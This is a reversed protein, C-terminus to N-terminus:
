TQIELSMQELVLRANVNHAIHQEAAIVQELAGIRAEDMTQERLSETLRRLFIEVLDASHVEQAVLFRESIGGSLFKEVLGDAQVYHKKLEPSMALEAQLRPAEEGKQTSAFRIHQMRSRITALVANSRSTVLIFVVGPHPEELSKLLSNSADSTMKEADFIIVARRGAESLATQSLDALVPKIQSIKISAAGEAPRVVAVSPDFDLNTGVYAKAFDVAAREKYHYQPGSIIYGHAPNDLAQTLQQRVQVHNVYDFM